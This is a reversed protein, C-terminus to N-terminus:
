NEPSYSSNYEDFHKYKYAIKAADGAEIRGNDNMDAAFLEAETMEVKGKYYAAIKAADGAEIRGNGNTDGLIVITYEQTVTEFENSAIVVFKSGTTILGTTIENGNKDYVKIEITLAGVVELSVINLFIEVSMGKNVTDILAGDMGNSFVLNAFGKVMDENIDFTLAGFIMEESMPVTTITIKVSFRGVFEREFEYTAFTGDVKNGALNSSNGEVDLRNLVKTFVNIFQDYSNYLRIMEQTMENADLGIATILEQCSVGDLARCARILEATTMNEIASAIAMSGKGNIYKDVAAVYEAKKNANTTSYAVAACILAAYARNESLDIHIDIDGDFDVVFGNNYSIDNFNVEFNNVNIVSLDHCFAALNEKEADTGEIVVTFSGTKSNEPVTTFSIYNGDTIYSSLRWNEVCIDFDAISEGNMIAYELGDFDCLAAIISNFINSFGDVDFIDMVSNLVENKGGALIGTIDEFGFNYIYNGNISIASGNYLNLAIDVAVDLLLSQFDVLHTNYLYSASLVIQLDDGMQKITYIDNCVYGEENMYYGNKLYGSVNETYRGATLLFSGSLKGDICGAADTAIRSDVVRVTGGTSINGKITYGNLNLIASGPIYVSGDLDVDATVIVIAHNGISNLTAALDTTCYFKKTVGSGNVDFVIAEYQKDIVNSLKVEYKVELPEADAGSEYIFNLMTENLGANQGLLQFVQHVDVKVAAGYSDNRTELVEIEVNNSIYKHINIVTNLVGEFASLDVNVGYKNFTNEISEISLGDYELLKKLIEMEYEVSGRLDLASIDILDANGAVLMQMLYYPYVSDPATIVVQFKGNDCVLNVYGKITSAANRINSLVSAPADDSLTVYFGMTRGDLRISSTMLKGGINGSTTMMPSLKSLAADNIVTGNATIINCLVDLSFKSNAVMDIISQLHVSEGDWFTTNGLEIYDYTTLAYMLNELASAMDNANASASMRLVIAINGNADQVPIFRAGLGEFATNMLDIFNFLKENDLNVEDVGIDLTRDLGFLDLSNFTYRADEEVVEILEDNIKYVYKQSNNSPAPLVITWDTDVYFTQPPVGPVNVTYQHPRYIAAFTDGNEAIFEEVTLDSYPINEEIDYSGPNIPLENALDKYADLLSYGLVADNALIVSDSYTVVSGDGKMVNVLINIISKNNSTMRIVSSEYIVKGDGNYAYTKDIASYVASALAGLSASTTDVYENVAPIDKCEALADRVTDLKEVYNGYGNEELLDVLIKRDKDNANAPCILNFVDSLIDLQKKINEANKGTYYYRLGDSVSKTKATKYSTLYGRLYIEGRTDVGQDKLRQVADKAAQSMNSGKVISVILNIKSGNLEGLINYLSGEAMKDLVHLQEKADVALNHPLMALEKADDNNIDTIELAYNVKVSEFDGEFDIEFVYEQTEANFTKDVFTKQEEGDLQLEVSVPKWTAGSPLGSAVEPATVTYLNDEGEVAAFTADAPVRYKLTGFLTPYENAKFANTKLIGLAEKTFSSGVSSGAVITPISSSNLAGGVTRKVTLNETVKIIDGQYMAVGNVTYDYSKGVETNNELVLRYGYYVTKDETMNGYIKKVTFTKPMYTIDVKILDETRSVSVKKEYNNANIGYDSANASWYDLTEDCVGLSEIKNLVATDSADENALFSIKKGNLVSLSNSDQSTLGIVQAKVEVDVKIQSVGAELTVPDCAVPASEIVDGDQHFKATSATKSSNMLSALNADLNMIDVLSASEKVLDFGVGQWNEDPVQGPKTTGADKNVWVYSSIGFALRSLASNLTELNSFTRDDIYDLSHLTELLDMRDDFAYAIDVINSLIENYAAMFEDTHDVIYATATKGVYEGEGKKYATYEAIEDLLKFSGGNANRAAKLSLIAHHAYHTDNFLTVGNELPATMSVLADFIEDTDILALDSECASVLNLNAILGTLYAPANILMKQYGEDLAVRVEYDVKVSYSTIGAADYRGVGNANLTFAKEQGTGAADTWVIRARVPKWVYGGNTFQAATVTQNDVDVTILNDDNNPVPITHTDSVIANCELVIKEKAGVYDYRAVIKADTTTIVEREPAQLQEPTASPIELATVATVGTAVLMALALIAALLRLSIRKEM